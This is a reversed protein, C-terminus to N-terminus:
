LLLENRNLGMEDAYKRFHYRTPSRHNMTKDVEKQRSTFPADAQMLMKIRGTTILDGVHTHQIHCLCLVCQILHSTPLM